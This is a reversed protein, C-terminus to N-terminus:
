SANKQKGPEPPPWVRNRDKPYRMRENMMRQDILAGAKSTGDKYNLEGCYKDYDLKALTFQAGSSLQSRLVTTLVEQDGEGYPWIPSPPPANQIYGLCITSWQNIISEVVGKASGQLLLFGSCVHDDVTGEAGGWPGAILEAEPDFLIDLSGTLRADADLWVVRKRASGSLNGFEHWVQAVWWAKMRVIRLWDNESGDLDLPVPLKWHLPGAPTEVALASGTANSVPGRGTILSWQPHHQRVSEIMGDLEPFYESRYAFSTLVLPLRDIKQM